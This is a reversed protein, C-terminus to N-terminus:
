IRVHTGRCALKKKNEKNNVGLNLICELVISNYWNLVVNLKIILKVSHVKWACM